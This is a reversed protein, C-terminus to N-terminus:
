GRKEYMECKKVSLSLPYTEIICQVSAGQVSWPSGCHRCRWLWHSVDDSEVLGAVVAEYVSRSSLWDCMLVGQMRRRVGSSGVSVDVM